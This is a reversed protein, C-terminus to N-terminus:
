RIHRYIQGNVFYILYPKLNVVLDITNYNTLKILLLSLFLSQKTVLVNFYKNSKM